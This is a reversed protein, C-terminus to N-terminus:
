RLLQRRGLDWLLWMWPLHLSLALQTVPYGVWITITCVRLLVFSSAREDIYVNWCGGFCRGNPERRESAGPSGDPTTPSGTSRLISGAGDEPGSRGCITWSARLTSHPALQGVVLFLNTRSNLPSRGSMFHSLKLLPEFLWIPESTLVADSLILQTPHYHYVHRVHHYVHRVHHYVHRVHHYVHRAHHYVPLVHHYEHCVHHVVRV